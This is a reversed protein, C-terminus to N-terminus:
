YVHLELFILIQETELSRSLLSKRCIQLRSFPISLITVFKISELEVSNFKYETIV